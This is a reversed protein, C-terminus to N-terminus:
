VYCSLKLSLTYIRRHVRLNCDLCWWWLHAISPRQHINVSFYNHWLSTQRYIEIKNKGCWCYYSLSKTIFCFVGLFVGLLRGDWPYLYQQCNSDSTLEFQVDLTVNNLATEPTVQWLYMTHVLVSRCSVFYIINQLYKRLYRVLLFRKPM